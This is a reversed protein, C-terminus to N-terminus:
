ISKSTESSKAIGLLEEIPYKTGVFQVKRIFDRYMSYWEQNLLQRQERTTPDEAEGKSPTAIRASPNLRDVSDVLTQIYQIMILRKEYEEM